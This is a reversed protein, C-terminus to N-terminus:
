RPWRWKNAFLFKMGSLLVVISIIAAIITKKMPAGWFERGINSAQIVSVVISTRFTLFIKSGMSIRELFFYIRVQWWALPGPIMRFDKFYMPNQRTIHGIVEIRMFSFSNSIIGVILSVHFRFGYAFFVKKSPKRWLPGM